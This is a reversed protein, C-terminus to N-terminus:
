RGALACTRFLFVTDAQRILADLRQEWNEAAAIDGKDLPRFGLLKLGASSAEALASGDLRASPRVCSTGQERGRHCKRQRTDGRQGIPMSPCVIARARSRGEMQVSSCQCTEVDLRWGHLRM